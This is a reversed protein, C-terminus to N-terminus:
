EPKLVMSKKKKKKKKPETNQNPKVDQFAKVCMHIVVACLLCLFIICGYISIMMGNLAAPDLRLMATTAGIVLAMGWSTISLGAFILLVIKRTFSARYLPEGVCRELLPFIVFHALLAVITLITVTGLKTALKPTILSVDGGTKLLLLFGGSVWLWLLATRLIVHVYRLWNLQINTFPSRVRKLILFDTSLATGLGLAM